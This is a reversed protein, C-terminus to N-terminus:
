RTSFYKYVDDFSVAIHPYTDLYVIFDHVTDAYQDNDILDFEYPIKKFSLFAEILHVEDISKNPRIKIIM